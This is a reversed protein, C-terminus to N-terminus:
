TNIKEYYVEIARPIAPISTNDSISYDIQLGLSSATYFSKGQYDKTHITVYDDAVTNETFPVDGTASVIIQTYVGSNYRFRVNVHYKGDGSPSLWYIKVKAIRAKSWPDLPIEVVPTYLNGSSYYNRYMTQLGGSTTTGSSCVLRSNAFNKLMGSSSGAGKTIINIADKMGIFPNGFQYVNGASNWYIVNDSVEVGGHIPVDHSFNMAPEFNSGNFLTLKSKKSGNLFASAGETFCGVTSKYTFGGNVYNGPLKYTYTYSSSTTDWFYANAISKYFSSNANAGIRYAFTVLFNPYNAFTTITFGAPLDLASTTFIGSTKNFSAVNNGNGIYLIGDDGEIMPHPYISLAAAGTPVTSMYDDDFTTTLDYRGVDGDTNDNWSYYIYPTVGTYSLNVDEGVVTSHGGHPSITHPWIGGSGINNTVTNTLIDLQHLKDGAIFYAKDSYVVGNKALADVVSVNTANEPNVGPMVYGPKRLPDIGITNILGTDGVTSLFSSSDFQPLLGRLWDDKDWRVITQGQIQKISPM